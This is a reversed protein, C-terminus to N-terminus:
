SKSPPAKRRGRPSLRWRCSQVTAPVRTRDPLEVVVSQGVFVDQQDAAPLDVTVFKDASAVALVPTGRNVPSGPQLLQESVFISEPLFVIEGLDVVGDADADISAQFDAVATRTEVTYLGDVVMTGDADFGIGALAQELQLVDAGETGGADLDAVTLAVRGPSVPDGVAIDVSVIEVPGPLFVVDGPDIRGDETLGYADQFAEVLSETGATFEGDVTALNGNFGLETLAVELQLIDDGEFNTSADFMSRYFPVDGYLLVVPEGDAEYLVDGQEVVVGEDPIGTVTGAAGVTISTSEEIATLTRYAPIAGALLVVREGDVEFLVEGSAVTDGADAAATITGILQSQVPDGEISGLTGDYTTIEELDARVVNAFDLPAASGADADAEGSGNAILWGGVAAGAVIAGSVVWWGWRRRTPTYSPVEEPQTMREETTTGRDAM